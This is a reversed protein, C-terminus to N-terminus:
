GGAGLRDAPVPSADARLLPPRHDSGGWAHRLEDARRADWLHRPADFYSRDKLAPRRTTRLTLWQPRRPSGPPSLILFPADRRAPRLVVSTWRNLSMLDAVRPLHWRLLDPAFHLLDDAVADAARRGHERRVG